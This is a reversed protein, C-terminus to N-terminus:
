VTGNSITNAAPRSADLGRVTSSGPRATLLAVFLGVLAGVAATERLREGRYALLDARLRRGPQDDAALDATLRTSLWEGAATRASETPIGRVEDLWIYLDDAAVSFAASVSVTVLVILTLLLLVFTGTRELSLM